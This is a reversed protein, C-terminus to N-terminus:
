DVAEFDRSGDSRAGSTAVEALAECLLRPQLEDLFGCNSELLECLTHEGNAVM